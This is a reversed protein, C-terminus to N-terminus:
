SRASFAQRLAAHLEAIRFPKRLFADPAAPQGPRWPQAGLRSLADSEGYGSMLACPPGGDPRERIRRLVEAGSLGPMTLDLLVLDVPREDLVQLADVGTAVTIVIMGSWELIDRVTSRAVEDDDLVLV